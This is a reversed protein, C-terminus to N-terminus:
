GTISEFIERVILAVDRISFKTNMFKSSLKGGM